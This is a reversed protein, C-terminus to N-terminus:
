TRELQHFGCSVQYVTRTTRDHVFLGERFRQFLFSNSACREIYKLFLGERRIRWKKIRLDRVAATHKMMEGTAPLNRTEVDIWFLAHCAAAHLSEDINELAVVATIRCFHRVNHVFFRKWSLSAHRASGHGRSKSFGNRQRLSEATAPMLLNYFFINARRSSM